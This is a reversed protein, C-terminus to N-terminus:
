STPTAVAAAPIVAMRAGRGEYRETNVVAGTSNFAEFGGTTTFANGSEEVTADLHWVEYEPTLSYATPTEGADLPGQPILSQIIFIVAATREGTPRWTGNIVRPHVDHETYSGDQSIIAYSLNIGPNQLDNDLQWVGIIPHDAMPVPATTPTAVQAFTDLNRGTLALGLGGASLGALVTRRSM